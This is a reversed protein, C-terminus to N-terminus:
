WTIGRDAMFGLPNIRGGGNWVEFHLHCGNSAGTSGVYAIVQGAQVSQGAGVIIGGPKIHAYATSIGGGHSIKVYNGWSNNIYGAYSVTGSHAARIAAGCGAAIDLGSHYPSSCGDGACIVPRPGFTGSIWGYAPKTWGDVGVSSGGGGGSGGGNAAAAAAAAPPDSSCVDSTWDSLWWPQRRRGPM